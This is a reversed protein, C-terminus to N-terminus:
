LVVYNEGKRIKKNDYCFRQVMKIAAIFFPKVMVTLGNFIFDFYTSKTM